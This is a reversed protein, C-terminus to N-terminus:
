FMGSAPMMIGFEMLQEAVAQQSPDFSAYLPRLAAVTQKMSDLQVAMMEERLELRDVLTDNSSDREFLTARQSGMRRANDEVTAAFKDWLPTQAPTVKIESKIFALRQQTFKAATAPDGFWGGMMGSGGWGPMMGPGYGRSTGSTAPPAAPGSQAQSLSMPLALSVLLAGVVVIQPFRKM